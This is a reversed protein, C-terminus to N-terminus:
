FNFFLLFRQQFLNHSKSLLRESFYKKYSCRVIQVPLTRIEKFGKLFNIFNQIHKNINKQCNTYNLKGLRKPCLEKSDFENMFVFM